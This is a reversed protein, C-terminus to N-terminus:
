PPASGNRGAFPADARGKDDGDAMTSGDTTDDADPAPTHGRSAAWLRAAIKLPDLVGHRAWWAREDGSRHLQDHHVNCLPLTFEDSVKLSMSRSQAFKLHHAQAPTRGCVLCPQSAVFALHAKDRLRKEKPIALGAGSREPCKDALRAPQNSSMDQAARDGLTRARAKLALRIAAYRDGSGDSQRGQHLRRFGDLNHEWFAYLADISALKSIVGLTATQFADPDGFSRDADGDVHLLLEPHADTIREAEPALSGRMASAAATEGKSARVAEDDGTASIAPRITMPATRGTKPATPRTVHAQDKDYLALGFPNGFTALARKTADTEAAKLAMDHALEPSAARGFGTGIGDRVIVCGGARVTIRVKATYLCVTQGRQTERWLCRPFLTKRDWSDFGFIRNAEAIAHWGEIYSLTAGHQERSRVHRFRLKAQLAQRQADNFPM